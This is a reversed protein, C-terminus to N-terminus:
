RKHWLGLALSHEVRNVRNGDKDLIVYGHNAITDFITEAATTYGETWPRDITTHRRETDRERATQLLKVFETQPNEPQQVSVMGDSPSNVAAEPFFLKWCDTDIDAGEGVLNLRVADCSTEEWEPESLMGKQRCHELANEVVAAVRKGDVPDGSYSVTVALHIQQQKSM